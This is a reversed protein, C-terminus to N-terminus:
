DKERYVLDAGCLFFCRWRYQPMQQNLYEQINQTVQDFSVFHPQSCEWSSVALWESDAVALECMKVRDLGSIYREGLKAQVHVDHSPSLFGGVVNQKTTQLVNNTYLGNSVLHARAIDFMRVHMKHVPCFSGTAVLVVREEQLCSM